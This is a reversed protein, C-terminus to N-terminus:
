PYLDIKTKDWRRDSNIEITEAQKRVLFITFRCKQDGRKISETLTVDVPNGVFEEFM